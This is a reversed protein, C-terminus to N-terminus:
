YVNVEWALTPAGVLRDLPAKMSKLEVLRPVMICLTTPLVFLALLNPAVAVLAPAKLARASLPFLKLLKQM